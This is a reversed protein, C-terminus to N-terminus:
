AGYQAYGESVRIQVYMLVAVLAFLIVSEASALGLSNFEFADRYLKFILLNTADGPGGSTLLDVIPFTSFFAYITNMVTLFVLTPAMLPLYVSRLRRLHGVGDLTARETLTKPITNFAAVVFIINYGLQKWIAVVAVVTFAQPGSNFWDLTFPTVAELYHTFVGLNPHLIFNLLIAAVAPPLAYPWIAAILYASSGVSVTFLLYGVAISLLLTGTVVIAAFLVSIAFSHHYATSTLLQVFNEAGVWATQQGLFLTRYLSLRFTELGPYYLFAGLVVVSPLLLGLAQLTSDFPTPQTSM